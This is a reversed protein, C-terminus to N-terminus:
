IIRPSYVANDSKIENILVINYM